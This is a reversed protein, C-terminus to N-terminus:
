FGLRYPASSDILWGSQEFGFAVETGDASLLFTGGADRYDALPPAGHLSRQGSDSLVGWSPDGAGFLIGGGPLPRLDMITSASAARDQPKGKGAQAWRRIPHEGKVDWRGGAELSTGDESWTVSSLDGNNVGSTDPAYLFSLDKGDLVAVKTSDAFGVAIRRGDPSFRASFPEQGGRAPAKALQRLGGEASVAYLRLAGDLCTTVLRGEGHWDVGYSDKGGYDADRGVERGSEAEWVRLGKGGGMVAALFRGEHSFALDRVVNPLGSLRRMQHGTATAFLYICTTRDWEAGTWGGVAALKGDPSLAGAYLKGENGEGIPPRLVRLLKGSPLEWLRATKDHSATLVLRGAADAAIRRISATHM